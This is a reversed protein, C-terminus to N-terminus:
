SPGSPACSAAGSARRRTGSVNRYLKRGTEWALRMADQWNRFYALVAKVAVTVALKIAAWVAQVVKRFTESKKYALIVGAVLGAIAVIVIGIPNASLAANLLWQAATAAATAATHAVTVATHAVKAATNAVWGATQRAINAVALVGQKVFSAQVAGVFKEVYPILMKGFPEGALAAQNRLRGLKDGMTLTEDGTREIAGASGDLQKILDAVEFRGERIAAAMDPGARAGFLEVAMAAADAPNKADKIAQMSDGLM